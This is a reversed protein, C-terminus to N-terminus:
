LGLKPVSKYVDHAYISETTMVNKHGGYRSVERIDTGNKLQISFFTHRLSHCKLEPFGSKVLREKIWTSLHEKTCCKFPLSKNPYKEIFYKFDTWIDEPIELTRKVQEGDKINIVKVEMKDLDIDSREITLLESRRMGMHLLIRTLRKLDENGKMDFVVKLFTRAEELTMSKKSKKKERLHKHYRKFPNSNVKDERYLEQMAGSLIVFCHNVSSNALGVEKLLYNEFGLIDDRNINNILYADGFHIQLHKFATKHNSITNERGGELKFLTHDRFWLVSLMETKKVGVKENIIKLNRFLFIM